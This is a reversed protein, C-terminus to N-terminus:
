IDICLQHTYGRLLSDKCSLRSRNETIKRSKELFGNLLIIRTSEIFNAKEFTFLITRYEFGTKDSVYDIIDRLDDATLDTFIMKNKSNKESGYQRSDYTMPM